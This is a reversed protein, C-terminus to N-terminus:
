IQINKDWEYGAQFIAVSKYYRKGNRFYSPVFPVLKWFLKKLM